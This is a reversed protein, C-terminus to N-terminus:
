RSREYDVPGFLPLGIINLRIINRIATRAPAAHATAGAKLWTELKASAPL